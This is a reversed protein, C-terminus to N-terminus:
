AFASVLVPQGNMILYYHPIWGIGYMEVHIDKKYPTITFEQIDNAIEGWKDNVTHLEQEYRGEIDYMEQQLEDIVERSEDIDVETQRKYRSARSMRSLTYNTRGKFISLIAEGTTYLQERKRDKIELKRLM